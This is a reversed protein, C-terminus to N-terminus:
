QRYETGTPAIDLMAGNTWLFAHDEKSNGNSNIVSSYGVVQGSANIATAISNGSAELAGLDILTKDNNVLPNWLFAHQWQIQGNNDYVTGNGVLQGKANLAVVNSERSGNIDEAPVDLLTTINNAWFFARQRSGASGM